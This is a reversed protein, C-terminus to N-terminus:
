SHDFQIRLESLGIGLEYGHTEVLSSERNLSVLAYTMYTPNRDFQIRSKPLGIGLEYLYSKQIRIDLQDKM